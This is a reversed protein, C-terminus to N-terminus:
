YGFKMVTASGGEGGGGYDVYAVYPENTSPNFAISTYDAPGASFGPTGVDIWTTGDFKMVAAKYGDRDDSYAVYPENTRPNFAISINLVRGASFGPRGVDSWVPGPLTTVTVTYNQTSGNAATVTYVVPSTFNNAIVGNVQTTSGVAVSAGTTVYTAVLATVNTGFPM